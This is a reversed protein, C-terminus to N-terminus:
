KGLCSREKNSSFCTSDEIKQGELDRLVRQAIIEELEIKTGFISHIEYTYGDIVLRQVNNSATDQLNIESM